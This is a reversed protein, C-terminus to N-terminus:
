VVVVVVVVIVVVATTAVAVAAAVTELASGCYCIAVCFLLVYCVVAVNHCSM